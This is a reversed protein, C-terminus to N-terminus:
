GSLLTNDDYRVETSFSGSIPSHEISEPEQANSYPVIGCVGLVHLALIKKRLPNSVLALLPLNMKLLVATKQSTM